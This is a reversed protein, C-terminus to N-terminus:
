TAGGGPPPPRPDPRPAAHPTSRGGLWNGGGVLVVLAGVTILIPVVPTFGAVALAILAGLVVVGGVVAVRVAPMPRRASPEDEAAPEQPEGGGTAAPGTM